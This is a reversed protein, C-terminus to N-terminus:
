EIRRLTASPDVKAALWAPISGAIVTTCFVLLMPFLFTSATLVPRIVFKEYDYIPYAVFYRVLAYGVAAGLVVGVAGVMLAKGLFIFFIERARFGIAALLSIQRRRALADIYLLALVPISVAVLSMGNAIREVAGIAQVTSRILRSDDFWALATTEPLAREVDAAIRRSLELSSDTAHILLISAAGLEGTETALFDRNVFAQDTNAFGVLGRVVMPYHGVGQDDLVLRPRTALLVQMDVQDDLGVGMKRALRQGLLIGHDDKADLERGAALEYPRHQAAPNVGTIGVVAFHTGHNVAGPLILLPEVAAVGPIRRITNLQDPGGKIREGRRPRVRVHGYGAAIEQQFLEARYGALNAVNPVQFAVAAVVALLLLVLSLPKDVLTRAALFGIVRPSQM